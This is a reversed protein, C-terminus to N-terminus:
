ASDPSRNENPGQPNFHNLHSDARSENLVENAVDKYSYGMAAYYETTNKEASFYHEEFSYGLCLQPMYHGQHSGRAIRQLVVASSTLYLFPKGTTKRVTVISPKSVVNIESSSGRIQM